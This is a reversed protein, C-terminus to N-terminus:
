RDEAIGALEPVEDLEHWEHPLGRMLVGCDFQVSGPPFRAPDAFFSSHVKEVAIPTMEWRLTQLQIGELRDGRVSCSFGCDGKEFFRSVEGFDKFLLTPKWGVSTDARFSVDAQSEETRVDMSLRTGEQQVDFEAMRHVGPVLRGGVLSIFCRDTERRWIFVGDRMGDHTPYRIAVRHAMNEASLGVAEPLGKPRLQALRILCVGVVAAGRHTAVELPEPVQLQVAAPDARFNLLVRRAIVGEITPVM